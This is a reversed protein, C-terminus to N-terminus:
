IKDRVALTCRSVCVPKQHDDHIKIEWVHTSQGKHIPVGVATVTGSKVARLHNANIELGVVWKGQELVSIM